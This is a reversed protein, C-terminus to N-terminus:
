EVKLSEEQALARAMLGSPKSIIRTTRLSDILNKHLYMSRTLLGALLLVFLELCQEYLM